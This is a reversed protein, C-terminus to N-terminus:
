VIIESEKNIKIVADAKEGNEKKVWELLEGSEMLMCYQTIMRTENDQLFQVANKLIHKYLSESPITWLYELEGSLRHYKWVAQSYVPTPCSIRTFLISQIGQALREKKPILVIYFNKNAYQPLNKSNNACSYLDQIVKREILRRYEIVDDELTNKELAEAALQGYKKNNM